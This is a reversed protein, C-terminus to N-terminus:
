CYVCTDRNLLGQSPAEVPASGTGQASVADRYRLDIPYSTGASADSNHLAVWIRM